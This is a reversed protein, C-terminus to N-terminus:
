ITINKKSAKKSKIIILQNVKKYENENFLISNCIVIQNSLEM